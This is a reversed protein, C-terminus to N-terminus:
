FLKTRCIKPVHKHTNRWGYRTGGIHQYTGHNARVFATGTGISIILAEEINALYTAGKGIATFEDIKETPIGYLDGVIEAQGIGTIVVKEIEEKKWHHSLIFQEFAEEVRMKELIVQNTIKEKEDMALIKINSTGADIGIIKM